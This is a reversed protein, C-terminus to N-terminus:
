NLGHPFFLNFSVKFKRREILQFVLCDGDALQHYASFARWESLYRKQHWVRCLMAFEKKTVEDVLVMMEDHVPVYQTFHTPIYQWTVLLDGDL